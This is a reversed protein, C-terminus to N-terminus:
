SITELPGPIGCCGARLQVESCMACLRGEGSWTQRREFKGPAKSGQQCTLQTNRNENLEERGEVSLRDEKPIEGGKQELYIARSQVCM